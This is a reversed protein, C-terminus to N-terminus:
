RSCARVPAEKRLREMDKTAKDTSNKQKRAEAM